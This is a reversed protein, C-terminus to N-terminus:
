DVIAGNSINTITATMAGARDSALLAPRRRRRRRRAPDTTTAAPRRTRRARRARRRPDDRRTCRRTGKRAPTRDGTHPNPSADPRLCDVRIGDTTTSIFLISGSRRPIMHRAAATATLFQSTPNTTVPVLFDALPHRSTTSSSSSPALTRGALVVTAAAGYIVV